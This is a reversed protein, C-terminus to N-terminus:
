PGFVEGLLKQCLLFLRGERGRRIHATTAMDKASQM